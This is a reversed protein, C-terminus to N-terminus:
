ILVNLMLITTSFLFVFMTLRFAWDQNETADMESEVPDFRGGLFFYTASLASFFNRPYDTDEYETDSHGCGEYSCSRLLHLLTITFAIICGAFIGFFVWIEVVAMHFFVVLVSFSLLRNNAFLDGKHISHMQMASAVPPIIFAINDVFNYHSTFYRKVSQLLQLVELIAFLIGMTIIAIFVGYLKSPRADYVQMIAATVVLVYYIFQFFFRVFWYPFGITEWKYTVLADIAPNDFFELDFDYCEVVPSVHFILRTLFTYFLVKWWTTKKVVLPEGFVDNSTFSNHPTLQDNRNGSAVAGGGGNKKDGETKGPWRGIRKGIKKGRVKDGAGKEGGESAGKGTGESGGGIAQNTKNTGDKRPYFWLADFSAVFVPKEINEDIDEITKDLKYKFQMISNLQTIRKIKAISMVLFRIKDFLPFKVLALKKCGVHNKWIYTPHKIPIYAIRGMCKLAEEPYHDMIKHMSAFIPFLFAVNKHQTAQAVCYGMLVRVFEIMSQQGSRKNLLIALPDTMRTAKSDPIWTIVNKPLIERVLRTLYEQNKTSWANCLPILCSTKNTTSPRICAQLYRVIDAKCSPDGYGYIDILSFIGYELREAETTMVTEDTQHPPVTLVDYLASNPDGDVVKHNKYWVPKGLYFKMSTGHSCAWAKILPRHCYDASREPEYILSGWIYDLQCIHTTKSSLTWIKMYGEAFIVLKSPKSLYFGRFSASTDGLPLVISKNPPPSGTSSDHPGNDVTIELMMNWCGNHHEERCKGQFVEGADSIFEFPKKNIFDEIPVENPECPANGCPHKVRPTEIKTLRKINLASGQKYAAITNMSALPYTIHYDEHLSTSASEVVEMDKIRVVSRIKASEYPSRSSDRVVFYENGLVVETNNDSMIGRTYVGLLSGSSSEHIQVTRNVSIAVKTGDPSLVAFIPSTDIDVFINSVPKGKEMDWISVVGPDGTWVFYRGRLSQVLAYCNARHLEPSPSLTIHQLQIWGSNKISYVELVSGNFAVFRENDNDDYVDFKTLDVRHFLGYGSFEKLEKCRRRSTAELTRSAHIRDVRDTQKCDYVAFPLTGYTKEIGGLVVKSGRTSISISARFNDWAELTDLKEPLNVSIEACPNLYSLTKWAPLARVDEDISVNPSRLDWVSIVGQVRTRSQLPINVAATVLGAAAAAAAIGAVPEMNIATVRIAGTLTSNTHKPVERLHLTVAFEAKDSIGYTRIKTAAAKENGGRIDRDVTIMQHPRGDGYLVYDDRRNYLQDPNSSQFSNTGLEVYNLAFSQPLMADELESRIKAGITLHLYEGDKTVEIQRHLRLRLIGGGEQAKAKLNTQIEVPGLQTKCTHKM